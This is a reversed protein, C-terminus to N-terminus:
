ADRAHVCRWRRAARHRQHRQAHAAVVLDRELRAPPIRLRPRTSAGRQASPPPAVRSAAAVRVGHRPAAAGAPLPRAPALRSSAPTMAERPTAIPGARRRPAVRACTTSAPAPTRARSARSSSAPVRHRAARLECASAARSCRAAAGRDDRRVQLEEVVGLQAAAAVSEIARCSRRSRRACRSGRSCRLAARARRRAGRSRASSRSSRSRLHQRASAPSSSRCPRRAAPAACRARRRAGATAATASSRSRMAPMQVARPPAVECTAMRAAAIPMGTSTAAPADIRAIAVPCAARSSASRPTRRTSGGRVRPRRRRARHRPACRALARSRSAACGVGAIVVSPTRMSTKAFRPEAASAAFATDRPASPQPRSRVSNRNRSRWCRARRPRAPRRTGARRRRTRRGGPRSGCARHRRRCAARRGAAAARPCGPARAARRHARAQPLRLQQARLELRDRPGGARRLAPDHQRHDALGGLEAGHARDSSSSRRAARDRSRAPARRRHDLRRGRRQEGVCSQSTASKREIPM